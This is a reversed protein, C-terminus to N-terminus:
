QSRMEHLTTKPQMEFFLLTYSKQVGKTTKIVGGEKVRVTTVLGTGAPKVPM